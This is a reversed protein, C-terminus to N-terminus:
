QIDSGQIARGVLPDRGLVRRDAADMPPRPALYGEALHGRGLEMAALLEPARGGLDVLTDVGLRAEGLRFMAWYFKVDFV